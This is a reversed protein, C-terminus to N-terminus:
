RLTTTSAAADPSRPPAGRSSAPRRSRSVTCRGIEPPEALLGAAVALELAGFVDAEALEPLRELLDADFERGAVAAARLVDRAPEPLRAVRQSILERVGPPVDLVEVDPWGDRVLATGAVHRAVESVFFPNGDTLRGVAETFSASPEQGTIAAILRGVDAGQLGGVEVRELLRERGLDAFLDAARDHRGGSRATALMAVGEGALGRVLHRVLMVTLRDGWQLDDIVLVAPALRTLMSEIADFLRRLEQERDLAPPEDIGDLRHKLAPVIRAVDSGIGRVVARLERQPATRVYHGFADAFPLFALAAEEDCRGYLVTGGAQHAALAAHAALVSKGVGPEGTLVVLGSGGSGLLEGLRRLERERGVLPDRQKLVLMGPLSIKARTLVTTEGGLLRGHLEQLEPGPATGLEDRLVRRVRDYVRLAAAFDGGRAHAEMWLRYGTEHYPEAAVIAEAARRAADLESGGIELGSEALCRLADVRLAALELRAEELWARDLGPLLREALAACAASASAVATAHDNQAAAARACGVDSRAREVDISAGEPLVLRLEHRGTLLQEGLAGRVRSLLSRVAAAPDAPAREEWIAEM